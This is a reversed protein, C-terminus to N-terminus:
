FVEWRYGEYFVGSDTVKNLYVKVDQHNKEIFEGSFNSIRHRLELFTGDVDRELSYSLVSIRDPNGDIFVNNKSSGGIKGSAMKGSELVSVIDETSKLLGSKIDGNSPLMVKPALSLERLTYLAAGAEPNVIAIDKILGDNLTIILQEELSLLALEVDSVDEGANRGLLSSGPCFNMCTVCMSGWDSDSAARNFGTSPCDECFRSSQDCDSRPLPPDAKVVFASLLCIIVLFKLKM